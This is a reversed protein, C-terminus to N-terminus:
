ISSIFKEGSAYSDNKCFSGYLKRTTGYKLVSGRANRTSGCKLRIRMQDAHVRIEPLGTGGYSLCGAKWREGEAVDSRKELAEIEGVSESGAGSEALLKLQEKQEQAARLKKELM